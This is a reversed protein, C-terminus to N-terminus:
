LCVCVCVKRRPVKQDNDKPEKSPIFPKRNINKNQERVSNAYQKQRRIKEAQRHHFLSLPSVSVSSFLPKLKSLRSKKLGEKQPEGGCHAM